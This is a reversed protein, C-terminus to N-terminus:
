ILFREQFTSLQKLQESIERFVQVSQINILAQDIIGAALGWESITGSIAGSYSHATRESKGIQQLWNEFDM